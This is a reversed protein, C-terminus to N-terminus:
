LATEPGPRGSAHSRHSHGKSYKIMSFCPIDSPGDGIYVMHEFPVPRDSAEVTDNVRYPNRRLEEGSIGKNVAFVFKTKETFSVSRKVAIARGGVDYEFACGFIDTALNGLATSRLLEEIGSSLIYWDIAVGADQFETSDQLRQRLAAVFDLAGPFFQVSSGVAQLQQLTIPPVEGTRALQLLKNLYALPPDWGQKVLPDVDQEWFERPQLGLSSLLSNTTDSCLTGDCDCLIAIVNQPM